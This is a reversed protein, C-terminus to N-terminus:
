AWSLQKEKPSNRRFVQNSASMERSGCFFDNSHTGLWFAHDTLDIFYREVKSKMMGFGVAGAVDNPKTYFFMAKPSNKLIVQMLEDVWQTYSNRMSIYKWVIDADRMQKSLEILSGQSFSDTVYVIRYGNKKLANLYMGAVGRTDLGFGDYFLVTNPDTKFLNLMEKYKTRKIEAIREIMCELELDTYCQNYRYLIHGAVSIAAMASECQNVKISRECVKKLDDILKKTCIAKNENNM